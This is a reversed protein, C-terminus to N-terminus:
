GTLTAIYSYEIILAYDVNCVTGILPNWMDQLRQCRNRRKRAVNRNYATPNNRASRAPNPHSLVFRM